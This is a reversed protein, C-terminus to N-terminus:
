GAARGHSGRRGAGDVFLREFMSAYVETFESSPVYPGAELLIVKKGANALEFAMVAGGAGSGIIVVDTTESLTSQRIDGAQLVNM